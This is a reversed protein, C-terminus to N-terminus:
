GPIVFANAIPSQIVNVEWDGLSTNRTKLVRTKDGLDIADSEELIELGKVLKALVRKIKAVQPHSQPLIQGRYEEMLAEYQQLGMAREREPSVVNFRRRGSVPVTELNTIYVAGGVGAV